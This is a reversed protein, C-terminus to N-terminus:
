FLIRINFVSVTYVPAIHISSFLIRQKLLAIFSDRWLYSGISFSCELVKCLAFQLCSASLYLCFCLFYHSLYNSAQLCFRTYQCNSMLSVNSTYSPFVFRLLFHFHFYLHLVLFFPTSVNKLASDPVMIMTALYVRVYSEIKWTSSANLFSQAIM